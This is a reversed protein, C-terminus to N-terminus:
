RRGRNRAHRALEPTPFGCIRIGALRRVQPPYQPNIELACTPPLSSGKRGPAPAAGDAGRGDSVSSGMQCGARAGVADKAVCWVGVLLHKSATGHSRADPKHRHPWYMHRCDRAICAMEAAGAAAVASAADCPPQAAALSVTRLHVPGELRAVAPLVRGVPHLCRAAGWGLIMCSEASSELSASSGTAAFAAVTFRAWYAQRTQRYRAACGLKQPGSPHSPCLHPLLAARASVQRGRREGLIVATAGSGRCM